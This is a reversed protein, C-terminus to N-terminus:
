AAAQVSFPVMLFLCAYLAPTPREEGKIMFKTQVLVLFGKPNNESDVSECSGTKM